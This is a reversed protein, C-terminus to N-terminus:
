PLAERKALTCDWHPETEAAEILLNRIMDRLKQQARAVHEGRHLLAALETGHHERHYSILAYAEKLDEFRERGPNHREDSM